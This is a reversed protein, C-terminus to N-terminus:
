GERLSHEPDAGVIALHGHRLVWLGPQEDDLVLGVDALEEGGREAERPELHGGGGGAALGDLHGVALM